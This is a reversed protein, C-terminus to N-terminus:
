GGVAGVFNPLETPKKYFNELFTSEGNNVLGERLQDKNSTPNENVATIQSFNEM